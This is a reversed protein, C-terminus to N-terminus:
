RDNSIKKFSINNLKIANGLVGKYKDEDLLFFKLKKFDDIKCKKKIVVLMFKQESLTIFKPKVNFTLLDSNRDILWKPRKNFDKEYVTCHIGVNIRNLTLASFDDQLRILLYRNSKNSSLYISEVFTTNNLKSGVKVENENSMIAEVMKESQNLNREIDLITYESNEARELKLINDDIYNQKNKKDLLDQTNILENIWLSFVKAGKFNLHELDGFEENKLPFDKFDIYEIDSFESKLIDKYLLENRFGQYKVHLPSRILIVDVGSAFCLEISKKLYKINISSREFSGKPKFNELRKVKKVLSDTKDRILYNYGGFKVKNSFFYNGSILRNVSKKKSKLFTNIFHNHSNKLLLVQDSFDIFPEFNLYKNDLHKDGWTWEDMFKNVQNNTFEIFVVKINRNEKLVKKLKNYTYFYSEGSKSFNKSYSIISDNYATEPHSHGFFAYKVQPDVKFDVKSNIKFNILTSFVIVWIIFIIIFLTSKFFLKKM